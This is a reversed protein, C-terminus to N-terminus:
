EHKTQAYLYPIAEEIFAKAEEMTAFLHTNKKVALVEIIRSSQRNVPDDSVVVALELGKIGSAQAFIQRAEMSIFKVELADVLVVIPKPAYALAFEAAKDAWEQADGVTINGYERCYFIGNEFIISDLPM